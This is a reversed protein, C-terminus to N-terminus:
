SVGALARTGPARRTVMAGLHRYAAQGLGIQVAAAQRLPARFESSRDWATELAEFLRDALGPAGMHVVSCGEGFLARLGEFKQQYYTSSSLCVAPVGRSLAFVAAHYAGTVVIRCHGVQAIVDAPRGLDLSGVTAAGLAGILNSLVRADAAQGQAIPLPVMGVSRRALFHGLACRVDAVADGEVGANESVRVNVGVHAGGDAPGFDYALEIADDGTVVIREAAVGLERLLPVGGAGDRLAILNVRPLIASAQARLRPGVLPGIGQGLMATPLGAAQALELTALV